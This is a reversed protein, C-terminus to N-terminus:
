SEFILKLLDEATENRTAYDKFIGGHKDYLLMAINAVYALKLDPDDRLADRFIRRSTIFPSEIDLIKMIKEMNLRKGLIM